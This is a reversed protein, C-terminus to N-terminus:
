AGTILSDHTLSILWVFPLAFYVLLLESNIFRVERARYLVHQRVEGKHARESLIFSQEASGAVYPSVLSPCLMGTTLIKM